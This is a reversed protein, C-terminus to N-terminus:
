AAEAFKATVAPVTAADAALQATLAAGAAGADTITSVLGPVAVNESGPPYFAVFLQHDGLTDAAGAVTLLNGGSYAANAILAHANLATVMLAAIEDITDDGGAGTVQINVREAGTTPHSIIVHLKWGVMNAGAAIETVTANTWKVDFDIGFLSKLMAKADTADNAFVVAGKVGNRSGLSAYATEDITVAYAPM